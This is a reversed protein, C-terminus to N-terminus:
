PRVLAADAHTLIHDVTAEATMYSSDLWLGLKPTDRRMEEDLHGWIDFVQKYGRTADRHRVVDIDPTLLVFCVPRSRLDELFHDLRWSIVVDDIVPSFGAQFYSDALLCANRTRLRLQREAEEAPEQHPWVGGALIWEQLRDSEIHVGRGLRAALLRSVTTKGAGPVGSIIYVSAVMCPM